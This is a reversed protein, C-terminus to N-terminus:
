RLKPLMRTIYTAPTVKITNGDAVLTSGSWTNFAVNLMMLVQAQRINKQGEHMMVAEVTDLALPDDVEIDDIRSEGFLTILKSSVSAWFSPMYLKELDFTAEHTTSTIGLYNCIVRLVSLTTVLAADTEANTYETVILGAVLEKGIYDRELKARLLRRYYSNVFVRDLATISPIEERKFLGQVLMNVNEDAEISDRHERILDLGAFLGKVSSQKIIRLRKDRDDIVDYLVNALVGPEYKIDSVVIAEAEHNIDDWITSLM